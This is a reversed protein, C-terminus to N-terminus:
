GRRQSAALKRAHRGTGPNFNGGKAWHSSHSTCGCVAGGAKKATCKKSGHNHHCVRCAKLQVVSAQVSSLRPQLGTAGTAPRYVPPALSIPRIALQPKTLKGQFVAAQPRYVPPAAPRSAAIPTYPAPKQM